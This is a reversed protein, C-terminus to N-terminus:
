WHRPNPRESRPESVAVYITRGGFETNHLGRIADNAQQENSMEVFGFGRGRGSDRDVAVHASRVDGFSSFLASLEADQTNFSLNRVFLKNM